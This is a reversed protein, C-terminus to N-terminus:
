VEFIRWDVNIKCKGAENAYAYDEGVDYDNYDDYEEPTKCEYGTLEEFDRRMANRAEVFTDFKGLLMINREWCCILIYM